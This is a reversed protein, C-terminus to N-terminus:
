NFFYFVGLCIETIMSTGVCFHFLNNDQHLFLIGCDSFFTVV